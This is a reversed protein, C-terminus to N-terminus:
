MHTRLTDLIKQQESSLNNLDAAAWTKGDKGILKGTDQDLIILERQLLSSLMAMAGSLKQVSLEKKIKAELEDIDKEALKLAELYGRQYQVYAFLAVIVLLVVIQWIELFM